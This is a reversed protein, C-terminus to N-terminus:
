RLAPAEQMLEIGHDTYELLEMDSLNVVAAVAQGDKALILRNHGKSVREMLKEPIAREADVLTAGPHVRLLDSLPMTTMSIRSFISQESDLIDLTHFFTTKQSHIATPEAGLATPLAGAAAALAGAQLFARRSLSAHFPNPEHM